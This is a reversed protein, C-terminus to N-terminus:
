TTDDFLFHESFLLQKAFCEEEEREREEESM